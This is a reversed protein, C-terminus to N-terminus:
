VHRDVLEFAQRTEGLLNLADAKAMDVMYAVQEKAPGRVDEIFGAHDITPPSEDQREGTENLLVELRETDGVLDGNYICVTKEVLTLPKDFGYAVGPFLAQHGDFYRQKITDIAKRLTYVETLFGLALGKWCEVGRASDRVM